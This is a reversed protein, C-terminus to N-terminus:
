DTQDTIVPLAFGFESGGDPRRRAWIRGDYAEVLRRCVSLGIGLGDASRRASASRYFPEFLKEGDEDIGGGRDLVRVAVNKVGRDFEVVISEGAPSYKEANSLLNEMVQELCAESFLVPCVDGDGVLEIRRSPHAERHHEVVRRVSRSVLLPESDVAQGKAVRALLLLNDIIRQLRAGDNIIDRLATEQVDAEMEGKRRFLLDANGRITTLPTRLEHSVLGLFEDKAENASRLADATQQLEANADELANRAQTSEEFLRASTLAASALNALAVGARVELDSFRHPTRYYFTLAGNHGDDGASLPSVFMSRIGEVEYRERLHSVREDIQVDEIVMPQAVRRRGTNRTSSNKVYAESLGGALAITWDDSDDACGWLAYADASLLQAEIQLIPEVAARAGGPSVLASSAEILSTLQAQATEAAQRLRREQEVHEYQDIAFAVHAAIAQATLTEHEEFTHPESYYLMFKGLLKSGLGLPIFALARIGEGEITSRLAALSAECQVDEVFVPTADVTTSKWPSHGDVARRYAESLNRWAVFRMVGDGDFLLLSSREVGLSRQLCDLAAEFIEQPERAAAVALTLEYLPNPWPPKSRRFVKLAMSM